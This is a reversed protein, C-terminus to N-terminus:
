GALMEPRGLERHIDNEIMLLIPHDPVRDLGEKIRARAEEFRKLTMLDNASKAYGNWYGSHHAILSEAYELSKELNGMERFFQNAVLLLNAQNPMKDLAQKIITHAEDFRKLAMLDEASKCYGSWNGPHYVILSEACELSKERDGLARYIDSAIVLLRSQNPLKALGAQVRAQAEGFRKLSVLDEASRCYGNWDDPYCATLSEAFELSKERNGSARYTDNAIILLRIQNPLKALGAQVRAQAEDFRKLAVLDEASRCYGSWDDPYNITLSEAFELSKERNGSARYIDNAIILLRIQNPLKALGAQVRAQAEDFRKLVMLDQASKYYGNWDGPHHIILSEAYELSKVLNGSARYVDSAIMLLNIQNPMKDLGEKIKAQAEDFNQLALLSQASKYYNEWDLLKIGKEHAVARFAGDGYIRSISSCYIVLNAFIKELVDCQFRDLSSQYQIVVPAFTMYLKRGDGGSEVFFAM